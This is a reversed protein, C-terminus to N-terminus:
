ATLSRIFQAQVVDIGTGDDDNMRAAAVSLTRAPVFLGEDVTLRAADRVIGAVETHPWVPLDNAALLEAAEQVDEPVRICQSDARAVLEQLEGELAAIQGPAIHDSMLYAAVATDFRDQMWETYAFRYYAFAADDRDLAVRLANLCAARASDWDERRALQIALKLHTLPYAPAYAVMANLHKLSAEVGKVQALVDALEMHAYFLNDPILVTREGSTAFLRNYIVREAYSNFYRPVGDGRAYLADVRALAAEATEFAQDVQGGFLLDRAKLREKDLEDAMALTVSPTDMGDILANTIRPAQETLEPDGIMDVIRMAEQAKTVSPLTDDAALRHFDAEARQMLDVRQISLGVARDTGLVAAVAPTFTRDSMEPEEQSGQPAYAPDRLDFGANVPRLAGDGDVDMVADFMRYTDMPHDLADQGIRTLFAERTFTVTALNRVTPNRKLVGMPDDHRGEDDAGDANADGAVDEGAGGDMTGGFGDVDGDQEGSPVAFATEDIDIDKMLDEFRRDLSDEGDQGADDPSSSDTTGAGDADTGDAIPRAPTRRPDGHFDGDKPEAKGGRVAGMGGTHMREFAGLAESMMERIASDQEALAEELGLSDVHLSVEHVKDSVAFSFAAMILGVRLNYDASMEARERSSLTVWRHAAADYRTAPMMSVGATTFGVAVRGEALDSRIEVDFRYPLRLRRVLLAMSQRYVWESGTDQREGSASGIHRAIRHAAEILGTMANGGAGDTNIGDTDVGDGATRIAAGDTADGPGLAILAPNCLLQMDITAAQERTVTEETPTLGLRANRELWASTQAFRNLNGEIALARLAPELALSSDWNFFYAGSYSSTYLHLPEAGHVAELGRVEDLAGAERMLEAFHDELGSVRMGHARVRLMDRVSRRIAGMPAERNLRRFINGAGFGVLMGSMQPLMYAAFFATAVADRYELGVRMERRLPYRLQELTYRDHERRWSALWVMRGTDDRGVIGGSVRGERQERAFMFRPEMTQVDMGIESGVFVRGKGDAVAIQSFHDRDAFVGLSFGAGHVGGPGPLQAWGLALRGPVDDFDFVRRKVLPGLRRSRSALERVVDMEARDRADASAGAAMAERAARDVVAGFPDVAEMTKRGSRSLRRALRRAAGMADKLSDFPSRQPSHSSRASM